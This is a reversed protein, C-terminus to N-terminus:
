EPNSPQPAPAPSESPMAADPAAGPDSEPALKEGTRPPARYEWGIPSDAGDSVPAVDPVVFQINNRELTTGMSAFLDALAANYEIVAQIEERESSAVREQQNLEIELREITRGKVENEIKLVRLSNTESLRTDRTKSILDYNLQVRVLASKVEGVITQLQNRYALVSQMRELRRRVMDAEAKRNGLPYEFALQVLYDLQRFDFSDKYVEGASDDLTQNRFQLRLNLDPLRANDAVMQRISADDIGLIAQHIEPRNQLGARISERLSFKVPADVANDSPILLLESGVPLDPDNMLQKLRDSILRLQTQARLVDARRRKVRAEANAVQADNADLQMRNRVIRVIEEGSELLRQLILLDQYSQVLQWYTSETDTAVRILDRKLTLVAGREANRAVRVEAQSIESGFGKLLPQDFQVTFAAVQAPDPRSQQRPTEDETYSYDHLLTLRGGGVTNRRFGVQQTFAASAAVESNFSSGSLSTSVRPTDNRDYSSSGIFVWDFAAAAATVQAEGIAPGLRAFQVAINRSAAGQVARELSVKATGIPRGLLDPGYQPVTAERAKPGSMKEVEALIDPRIEAGVTEAERTTVIPNTRSNADRLETTSADLIARRLDESPSGGFPSQACGVAFGISTALAARLLGRPGWSAIAPLPTQSPNRAIPAM